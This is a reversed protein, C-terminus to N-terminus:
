PHHDHKCDRYKSWFHLVVVPTEVEALQMRVGHLDALRFDAAVDLKRGPEINPLEKKGDFASITTAVGAMLTALVVILRRKVM